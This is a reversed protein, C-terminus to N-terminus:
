LHTMQIAITTSIQMGQIHMIAILVLFLIITMLTLVTTSIAYAYFASSKVLPTEHVKTLTHVKTLKFVGGEWWHLCNCSLRPSISENTVLTLFFHIERQRKRQYSSQCVIVPFSVSCFIRWM